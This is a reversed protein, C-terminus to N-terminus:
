GFREGTRWVVFITVIAACLWLGTHIVFCIPWAFSLAFFFTVARSLVFSSQVQPRRIRPLSSPTHAAARVSYGGEALSHPEIAWHRRPGACTATPRGQGKVIKSQRQGMDLQPWAAAALDGGRVHAWGCVCACACESRVYMVSQAIGSPAHICHRSRPHSQM